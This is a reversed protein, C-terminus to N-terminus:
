KDNFLRTNRSDEKIYRKTMLIEGAQGNAELAIVDGGDQLAGRVKYTQTPTLVDTDSGDAAVSVVRTFGMIIGGTDAMGYIECVIREETAWRCWNLRSQAENTTVVAKPEGGTKLDVVYVTEDSQAGPQIYAIKDGSPSISLSEVSQRAGFAAADRALDQASLPVAFVAAAFAVFATSNKM